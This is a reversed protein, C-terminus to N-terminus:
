PTRPLPLSSHAHQWRRMCLADQRPAYSAGDSGCAPAHWAWPAARHAAAAGSRAVGMVCGQGKGQVVPLRSAESCADTPADVTGGHPPKITYPVHRACFAACAHTSFRRKHPRLRRPAGEPVGVRREVSQGAVVVAKACRRGDGLLAQVAEDLHTRTHTNPRPTDTSPHTCLANNTSPSRPPQPHPQPPACVSCPLRASCAQLRGQVCTGSGSRFAFGSTAPGLVHRVRM